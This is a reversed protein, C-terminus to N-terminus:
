HGFHVYEFMIGFAEEYAGSDILDIVRENLEIAGKSWRQSLLVMTAKQLISLLIERNKTRNEEDTLTVVYMPKMNEEQAKAGKQGSHAERRMPLFDNHNELGTLSCRFYM